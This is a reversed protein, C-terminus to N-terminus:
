DGKLLVVCQSQGAPGWGGQAVATKPDGAQCPGAEGRIQKACEIVRTMGAVCLPNGGLVGGSSNIPIKGDRAARGSEFLEIGEGPEAFGMAELSMLTQHAFYDTLEILQVDNAPDSIGAMRYAKGAAGELAPLSSLDRDGLYYADTSIGFGAVWVPKDTYKGAVDERALVLACAGDSVPRAMPERIPSALMRGAMVEAADLRKGNHVLPNDAANGLSHVAAAAMVEEPLGHKDLYAGAQLAAASVDDLGIHRQYIPDFMANAIVNQEGESMKCHAVCLTTRYKGSMIRMAGYAVAQTGDSAVKAESKLYAGEVEPITRNSITRGDLFDQSCSVVNDIDSNDIGADDLAARVAEYVMETIHRDRKEAEYSTQATGIIAVREGM